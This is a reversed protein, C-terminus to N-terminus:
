FAGYRLSRKIWSRSRMEFSCVNFNCLKRDVLSWSYNGGSELNVEEFVKTEEIGM